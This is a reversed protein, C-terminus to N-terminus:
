MASVAEQQKPKVVMEKYLWWGGFVLALGGVVYLLLNPYQDLYQQYFPATNRTASVQEVEVVETQDSKRKAM